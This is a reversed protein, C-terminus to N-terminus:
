QSGPPQLEAMRSWGDGPVEVNIIQPTESIVDPIWAMATKFHDSNVHAEGAQRSAFAEVVVFQNPDDISRSWEFFINGEEQQTAKTFDDVLSLWEDSRDPRITFKAVIFIM